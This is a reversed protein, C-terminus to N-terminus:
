KLTILTGQSWSHLVACLELCVFLLPKETLEHPQPMSYFFYLIEWPAEYCREGSNCALCWSYICTASSNPNHHSCLYTAAHVDHLTVTHVGGHRCSVDKWCSFCLSPLFLAACFCQMACDICACCFGNRQFELLPLHGASSGLCVSTWCIGPM